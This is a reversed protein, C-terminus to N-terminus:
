KKNTKLLAIREIDKKSVKNDDARYKSNKQRSKKVKDSAEYQGLM